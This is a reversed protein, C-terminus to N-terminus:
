SPKIENNKCIGIQNEHYDWVKSLYFYFWFSTNLDDM